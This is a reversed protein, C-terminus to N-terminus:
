GLLEPAAKGIAVADLALEAPTPHCCYKEGV